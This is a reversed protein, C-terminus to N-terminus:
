CAEVSVRVACTRVCLTCVICAGTVPSTGTDDAHIDNRKMRRRCSLLCAAIFAIVQPVTWIICVIGIPKLNGEVWDILAAKYDM